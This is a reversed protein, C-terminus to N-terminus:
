VTIINKQPSRRGGSQAHFYSVFLAISACLREKWTFNLIEAKLTFLSTVTQRSKVPATSMLKWFLSVSLVLAWYQLMSCLLNCCFSVIISASAHSTVSNFGDVVHFNFDELVRYVTNVCCLRIQNNSKLSVSLLIKLESIKWHERFSLLTHSHSSATLCNAALREVHLVLKLGLCGMHSKPYAFHCHPLKKKSYRPKERWTIM